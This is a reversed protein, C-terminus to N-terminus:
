RIENQRKVEDSIRRLIFAIGIAAVAIILCTYLIPRLITAYEYPDFIGDSYLKFSVVIWYLTSVFAVLWLVARMIFINRVAIEGKRYVRKHPKKVEETINTEQSM